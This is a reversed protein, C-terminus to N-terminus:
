NEPDLDDKLLEQLERLLEIRGLHFPVSPSEPNAQKMESLIFGELRQQGEVWEVLNAM